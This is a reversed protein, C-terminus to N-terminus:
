YDAGRGYPRVRRIKPLYVNKPSINEKRFFLFNTLTMKINVKKSLVFSHYKGTHITSVCLIRIINEKKSLIFSHYKGTHTRSVDCVCLVTASTFPVM